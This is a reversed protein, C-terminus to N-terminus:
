DDTSNLYPARCLPCTGFGRQRLEGVCSTCFRHGCPNLTSRVAGGAGLCVACEDSPWGGAPPEVMGQFRALAQACRAAFSLASQLVWLLFMTDDIWGLVPIFDPVVDLPSLAYLLALGLMIKEKRRLRIGGERILLALTRIAALFSDAVPRLPNAAAFFAYKLARWVGYLCGFILTITAIINLVGLVNWWFDSQLDEESM